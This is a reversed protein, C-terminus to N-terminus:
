SIIYVGAVMIITAIIKVWVGDLQERYIREVAPRNGRFFKSCFLVILSFLLIFVPIFTEVAAVYSVSPASNLAGQSAFNGLFAIGELVIFIKLYKRILPLPNRHGVIVFFMGGLFAGLSFCLFGILFGQNGFGRAALISYARGVFVMSLSLFIVAGIMIWFYRSSIKSKLGKSMSLLFVGLLIVGMGLYKYFSLKEGWLFFSLVPVVIITLSWFIQLLAADNHNFLAKFYFYFALIGLFGGLLAILLTPDIWFLSRQIRFNIFKDMDIKLFFILFTWPIIQFLGAIITGDLEDKYVQGVFYVDIINVLAWFMPALFSLILWHSKLFSFISILFEMM